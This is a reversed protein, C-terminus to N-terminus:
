EKFERILNTISLDNIWDFNSDPRRIPLEREKFRFSIEVTALTLKHQMLKLDGMISAIEGTLSIITRELDMLEEFASTEMLSLYHNLLKQKSKLRSKKDLIENQRNTTSFNRELVFGLKETFELILDLNVTPVKLLVQNDGRSQYYGGLYETLEIIKDAAQDKNQVNVVMLINRELVTNASALSLMIMILILFKM